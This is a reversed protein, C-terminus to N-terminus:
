EFFENIKRAVEAGVRKSAAASGAGIHPTAVTREFEVLPNGKSPEEEYVDVGTAFVKGSEMAELLATENITGGRACNVVIVGDKMMDFQPTDLLYHTEKTHPIHLSVFDSEKCLTDLDVKQAGEAEDIFPDYFIVKMGFGKARKAVEQSIRGYGILGLTSHWLEKGKGYAKKNWEGKKMTCNAPGLFRSCALMHAIALEAVAVSSASPTNQVSIGLEAADDLDINDLGVGGRVILKLNGRAAKELVPKRVKTASRVVLADFQPATVLLEEPSMGIKEVVEHGGSRIAELADEAVADCILVRAM